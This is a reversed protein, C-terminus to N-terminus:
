TNEFTVYINNIDCSGTDVKAFIYFDENRSYLVSSVDLVAAGSTTTTLNTDISVATDPLLITDGASDSTIKVSIVTANVINSIYIQVCHLKSLFYRSSSHSLTVASKKAVDYTTGISSIAEAESFFYAM